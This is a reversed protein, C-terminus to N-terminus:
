AAEAVAEDLDIRIPECRRDGGGAPRLVTVVVIIRSWPRM